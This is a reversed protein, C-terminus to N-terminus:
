RVETMKLTPLSFQFTTGVGPSSEVHLESDHLHLIRRAIALGLGTGGKEKNRTEDAKYFRDFIHPLDVAPIGPGNDTIRVQVTDSSSELSLLISGGRPTFRLANEILNTIVREILGVDAYLLDGRAPLDAEIKLEAEEAQPKFQLVLDQILEAVSFAEKRPVIQDADLRSLDFLEEIMASLSRTNRLIIELYRDREVPSLDDSKLAITELYGQMSSLPSRLDHSINAIMDRRAGDIERLAAVNAEITDAMQNFAKALQGIEDRADDSARTDLQGRAFEAVTNNIARLRRTLQGFFLLGLAITALIVLGLSRSGTRLIYSGRVMSAVGEYHAGTLIVYVFCDPKGMIEIHAASFPKTANPLSPDDGLVPPPAGAVFERLPELDITPRAVTKNEGLLYKGMVTGQPDLLYVEIRPNIKTIEELAAEILSDAIAEELLPQLKVAIQSALESNLKQETENAFQRFASATLYAVSIGLGVVLVLFLLGLKTYFSYITKM